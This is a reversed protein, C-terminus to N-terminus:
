NMRSIFIELILILINMNEYLSLYEFTEKPCCEKTKYFQM